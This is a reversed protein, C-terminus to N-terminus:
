ICVQSTLTRKIGEVELTLTQRKEFLSGDNKPQSEKFAIIKEHQLKINALSDLAAKMQLELKKLNKTDREKDKQAKVYADYETKKDAMAHKL